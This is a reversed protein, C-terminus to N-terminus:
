IQSTIKGPTTIWYNGSVIQKNLIIHSRSRPIDTEAYLKTFKITSHYYLSLYRQNPYQLIIKTIANETRPHGSSQRPVSVGTKLLTKFKSKKLFSLLKVLPGLCIASRKPNLRWFFSLLPVQISWMICLASFSARSTFAVYVLWLGSHSSIVSWLGSHATNRVCNERLLAGDHLGGSRVCKSRFM